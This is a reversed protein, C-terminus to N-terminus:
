MKAKLTPRSYLHQQLFALIKNWSDEQADSHPKTQGGWLLVAKENGDKIFNTARFHPTYPPEILHGTGPYELRTLLHEKGAARMIQAMDEAAEVTAINQDDQGNVLLVPCNIRGVDVKLSPDDPIPLGMGRWIQHNNEDVCVKHANSHLLQNFGRLAEGIPFIHNGSVCVCCRPKIVSSGVALLITVISGLSLGFLGVKDPIVQPHDKVINFATEFYNLGIDASKLESAAFYELALSAYGRSALLASRYELLGGGGGWMDLMGPFPGPGPPIFLTGRVGKEKIEIRQVGPGMYWRETLSSALPAQERFGEVVHGSYVSINVLLPSCINMKRLRLGKRSGPVPRMSWLLGMAEKGTYTGGFSLDEALSVTGRHDSIYHGYAEWYDKDESHHLSHLTVPSGPPLNEVVVKFKEDVLARSPAVSLIPPVTHSMTSSRRLCTHHGSVQLQRTTFYVSRLTGRTFSVCKMLSM